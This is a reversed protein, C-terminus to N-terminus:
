DFVEGVFIHRPVLDALPIDGVCRLSPNPKCVGPFPDRVLLARTWKVCPTATRHLHFITDLNLIGGNEPAPVQASSMIFCSSPVEGDSACENRVTSISATKPEAPGLLVMKINPTLQPSGGHRLNRVKWIGIRLDQIQGLLKGRGEMQVMLLGNPVGDPAQVFGEAPTRSVLIM